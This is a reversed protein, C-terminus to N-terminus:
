AEAGEAWADGDLEAELFERVRKDGSARMADAVRILSAYNAPETEMPTTVSTQMVDPACAGLLTAILAAGALLNARRVPRHRMAMPVKKEM